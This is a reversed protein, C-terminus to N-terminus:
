WCNGRCGGNDVECGGVEIIDNKLGALGGEYLEESGPTAMALVKSGNVFLESGDELVSSVLDANCLDICILM